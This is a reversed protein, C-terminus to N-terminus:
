SDTKPAQLESRVRSIERQSLVLAGIGGGLFLGLLPHGIFSGIFGGLGAPLGAIAFPEALLRSWTLRQRASRNAHAYRQFRENISLGSLEPISKLTWYVRV